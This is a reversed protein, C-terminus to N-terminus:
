IVAIVDRARAFLFEKDGDKFKAAKGVFYIIDGKKIPMEMFKNFEWHGPGTELVRFTESDREVGEPLVIGENREIRAIIIIDQMPRM